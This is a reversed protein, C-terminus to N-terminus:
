DCRDLGQAQERPEERQTVSGQEYELNQPGPRAGRQPTAKRDVMYLSAWKLLTAQEPDCMKAPSKWWQAASAARDIVGRKGGAGWWSLPPPPKEVEHLTEKTLGAAAPM